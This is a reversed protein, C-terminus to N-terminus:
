ACQLVVARVSGDEPVGAAFATLEAIMTEDFANRVAPRNLTVTTVRGQQILIASV